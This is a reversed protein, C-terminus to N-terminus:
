QEHSAGTPTSVLPCSEVECWEGRDRHDAHTCQAVGENVKIGEYCGCSERAMEFASEDSPMAPGVAHLVAVRATGINRCGDCGGGGCARHDILRREGM